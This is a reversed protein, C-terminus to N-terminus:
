SDTAASLVTKDTDSNRPSKLRIIRRRLVGSKSIPSHPTNCTPRVAIRLRLDNLYRDRVLLNLAFAVSLLVIFCNCYTTVIRVKIHSFFILCLFKIDIFICVINDCFCVTKSIRM